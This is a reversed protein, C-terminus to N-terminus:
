KRAETGVLDLGAKEFSAKVGVLGAFGVGSSLPARLARRTWAERVFLTLLTGDDCARM